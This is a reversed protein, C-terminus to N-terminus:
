NMEPRPPRGALLAPVPLSLLRVAGAPNSPDSIVVAISDTATDLHWDIEHGALLRRGINPADPHVRIAALTVHRIRTCEAQEDM